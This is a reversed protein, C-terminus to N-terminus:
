GSDIGPGPRVFSRVFPAVATSFPHPTDFTSDLSSSPSSPSSPRSSERLAPPVSARKVRSNAAPALTTINTRQTSPLAAAPCSPSIRRSEIYGALPSYPGRWTGRSVTSDKRKRRMKARKKKKRPKSPVDNVVRSVNTSTAKVRLGKAVPELFRTEKFLHKNSFIDLLFVSAIIRITCCRIRFSYLRLSISIRGGGEGFEYSNAFRLGGRYFVIRELRLVHWKVYLGNVPFPMM